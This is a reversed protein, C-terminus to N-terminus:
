MLILASIENEDKKLPKLKLYAVVEKVGQTSNHRSQTM